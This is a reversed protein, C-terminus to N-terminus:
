TPVSLFLGYMCVCVHLKKSFWKFSIFGELANHLLALTLENNTQLASTIFYFHNNQKGIMKSIMIHRQIHTKQGLDLSQTHKM